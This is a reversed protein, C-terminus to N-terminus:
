ETKEELAYAIAKELSMNQGKEWAAKFAEETLQERVAAEFRDIEPQDAPQQGLGMAELLSDSAGLLQAAREPDGRAAATGSLGALDLALSYKANLSRFLILAEKFHSEALEYNGRNQAVLGLNARAYAERVKNDSQRCLALCEEYARGARNYDGDLRSLEGMLNLARIIGQRDGQSRFLTLAEEVLAIGEKIDSPSGTCNSSLFVLAWASNVDDGLERYLALAQNNFLKGREYNGQVFSLSGAANLVKARLGPSAGEANELVQEIWGLGEGAHGGYYWFDLLAGVIRLGLEVEDNALAFALAARLNDHESRLLDFWQGQEASTLKSEAQEALEAFYGAHRRQLKRTEGREQLKERAYEHLTELMLFRPEGEPGEEQYLLSKNLLSELGDIVPISLEPACIAEAAEITRGGQFVSLRAFLAKEAEDLLDYSWDITGRLTQLRSPLDRARGTLTDLRSGLRSRIMEPSLLRSRAAALEIALPLGDLRVCIEAIAAANSEMLSFDPKVAQARQCFLEVAECRSQTRYAQISGLEPVALPPVYYEQEGYVELVQRSTVLIKLGPAASLFDGVLPATEIIQEFNDLVLLLQKDKLYHKLNEVLSGSGTEGLDFVQAITTPVFRPDSIPALEVFLVGDEFQHLIQSAVQLALRTKGTGPPGSLTLLRNTALLGRIEDIERQRGIFSTVQAPLNHPPTVGPSQSTRPQDGLLGAAKATAVAQTRNHVGLKSYIQKNYWKITELSLVLRQAIQRNTCGAEILRLIEVERESLPELLNDMGRENM